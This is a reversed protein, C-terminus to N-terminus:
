KVVKLHNTKNPKRNKAVAPQQEGTDVIEISPEKESKVSESGNLDDGVSSDDYEEIPFAMGQANERAIIALIAGIPVRVVRAVGSFRANFSVEENELSLAQVATPSINLVIEGNKVHERPVQVGPWEANVILHPTGQNDLIWDYLARVLYPKNSSFDSM